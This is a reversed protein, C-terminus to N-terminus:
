ELLLDNGVVLIHETIGGVFDFVVVVGVVFGVRKIRGLGLGLVVFILGQKGCRVLALVILLPCLAAFASALAGQPGLQKTRAM